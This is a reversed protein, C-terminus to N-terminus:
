QTKGCDNNVTLACRTRTCLDKICIRHQIIFLLLFLRPDPLSIQGFSRRDTGTVLMFEIITADYRLTRVKTQVILFSGIDSVIRLFLFPSPLLYLFARSFLALPLCPLTCHRLMQFTEAVIRSYKMTSCLVNPDCHIVKHLHAAPEETIRTNAHMRVRTRGYLRVYVSEFRM